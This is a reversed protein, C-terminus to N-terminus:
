KYRILNEFAVEPIFLSSKLGNANKIAIRIDDDKIIDFPDMNSMSLRFIEFLIYNIRAGGLLEENLSKIYKGRIM